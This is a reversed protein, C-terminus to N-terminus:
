IVDLSEISAKTGSVVLRDGEEIVDNATPVRILPRGDEATRKRLLVINVGTEAGLKSERLTKGFLRPTPQIEQLVYGGGLAVQQGKSAVLVNSSVSGALDRRLIEQNYAHIVDKKHISGVVHRPDDELVVAVEDHSDISFIQMVLDLDDDETVTPVNAEALDGAVVIPMLAEQEVLMRTLARLHISGRLEDQENV